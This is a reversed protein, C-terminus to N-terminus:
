SKGIIAKIADFYAQVKNLDDVPIEHLELLRSVSLGMDSIKTESMGLAFGPLKGAQTLLRVNYLDVYESYFDYYRYLESTHSVKFSPDWRSTDICKGDSLYALIVIQRYTLREILGLLYHAHDMNITEDFCLNAFFNSYFSLKKAQHEERAKLLVGEFVEQANPIEIENAYYIEDARPARGQKLKDSIKQVVQMFVAEVRVDERESLSKPIISKVGREIIPSLASLVIGANPNAVSITATLLNMGSDIFTGKGKM